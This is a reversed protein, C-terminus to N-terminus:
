ADPQETRTPPSKKRFEELRQLLAALDPPVESAKMEAIIAVPTLSIGHSAQLAANLRGLVTKGPVVHLRTELSQWKANFGDLAERAM